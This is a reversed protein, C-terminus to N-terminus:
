GDGLFSISESLDHTESWDLDAFLQKALILVFINKIFHRSVESFRKGRDLCTM